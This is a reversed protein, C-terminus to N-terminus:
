HELVGVNTIRVEQKPSGNHSGVAEIANVVEMGELVKGFVVHKGDLWACDATTIFFQSGNTNPGANAMSLLGPENHSFIFNEDGFQKGYISISGTGDGNLIDGGQVMFGPIIRHFISNKYHLQGKGEEQAKDGKCLHYFNLATRPVDKAFLEFTIRGKPTKNISIDFFAKLNERLHISAQQQYKKHFFSYFPKKNIIQFKSYMRNM